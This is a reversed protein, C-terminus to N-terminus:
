VPVGEIVSVEMRTPVIRELRFGATAYLERYERETREMGGPIVLMNLDLLKTFSPENGVPVVGEVVLLKSGAGMVQRCNRLITLSQEDNWDHIIHRMLYADGGPPVSEFFSGGVTQCRDKVGAVQLNAAAREVVHPLDSLIGRVKTHRQLVATIVSGNGGGVDIVTGFGSFDYADLMAATEAGHVGVMAEDFIRAQEPHASLYDFVPQGYVHDFAPKGTRLSHLLDGWARYHEDGIMLAASRMSGPVDSRLLQALETLGFRGQEDEVFVGVSALGRLLRHLSHTHTSTTRALNQPTQPGDRLLDAIGLAAAAHLCQSIWFGTALRRM